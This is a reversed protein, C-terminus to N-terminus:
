EERLRGAYSYLKGKTYNFIITDGAEDNISIMKDGDANVFFDGEDIEGSAILNDIGAKIQEDVRRKYLENEEMRDM